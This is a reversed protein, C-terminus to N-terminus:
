RPTGATSRPTGPSTARVEHDDRRREPRALSSPSRRCCAISRMSPTTTASASGCRAAPGSSASGSSCSSRTTTGTGSSSGEDRSSRPRRSRITRGWGCRSRRRASRSGPSTASGSCGSARSRASGRSPVSRVIGTRPRRDGRVRGRDGRTEHRRDAHPARTRPRRPVRDRRDHRRTRRPEPYRNGMPGPEHRRRAAAEIPGVGRAGRAPRRADRPAARLVQLAVDRRPRRRPRAPRDISTARPARRRPAVLAGVGKARRILEAASTITGVANSALTVAVLKTRGSLAADFDDLDLTVDDDVVDVWRVTAGADTAALLWPRINADHDLRTVVVEDGPGITKAFSRSLHLLLTTTNPGVVVEDPDCGLLDAGAAHADAILTDTEQSTVFVGHTNSVGRRFHGVMAEIVTDPVQSGGPADAFVFPLGNPGIRALAPFRDRVATPDLAKM